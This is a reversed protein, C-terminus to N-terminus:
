TTNAEKLAKKIMSLKKRSESLPLNVLCMYAEIFGGCRLKDGSSIETHFCRWGLEDGDM